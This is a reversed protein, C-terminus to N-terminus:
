PSDGSAPEVGDRQASGATDRLLVGAVEALGMVTAVVTVGGGNNFQPSTVSVALLAVVMVRSGLVLGVLWPDGRPLLPRLRLWSFLFAGVVWAFLVVGVVGLRQAFWLYNNHIYVKSEPKVGYRSFDFVYAKGLGNGIWPHALIQRSVARDEILRYQVNTDNLAAVAMARTVVSAFLAPRFALTAAGLVAVALVTGAILRMREQTRAIILLYVISVAFGVWLGRVLSLMLGVLAITLLIWLSWPRRRSLPWMVLMAVLLTGGQVFVENPAPFRSVGPEVYGTEIGRGLMAYVVGQVFSGVMCVALVKMFFLVTRRDSVMTVVWFFMAYYVLSRADQLIFKTENGGEHGVVAAAGIWVLLLGLPLSVPLRTLTLSRQSLVALIWSVVLLAFLIDTLFIGGGGVPIRYRLSIDAPLVVSVVLLAAAIALMGTRSGVLSVLLALLGVATVLAVAVIPSRWAVAAVLLELVIVGVWFWPPRRAVWAGNM